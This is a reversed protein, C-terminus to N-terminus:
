GLSNKRELNKRLYVKLRESIQSGHLVDRLQAPPLTHAFELARALPTHPNRLLAIRIEHRTSWRPHHCITEVLAPSANPHGLARVVAGETLRPNELATQWVPAEKDLLLAATITRSARRALSIREGLTISALRALLLEDAARKIDAAVTPLLAFRMLDFTYFERILRLCLHRAARPHAAIALRVKRSKRVGGNKALQEIADGSLNGNKLLTLALDETIAPDSARVQEPRDPPPSLDLPATDSRSSNQSDM